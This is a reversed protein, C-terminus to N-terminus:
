ESLLLGPVTTEFLLTAMPTKYEKALNDDIFEKTMTDKEPTMLYIKFSKPEFGPKMKIKHDWSTSKPFWTAKKDSFVNLFQPPVADKLDIQEDQTNMNRHFPKRIHCLLILGYTMLNQPLKATSTRSSFPTTTSNPKVLMLILRDSTLTPM